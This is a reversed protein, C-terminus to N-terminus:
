SEDGPSLPFHTRERRFESLSELSYDELPRIVPHEQTFECQEQKGSTNRKLLQRLTRLQHSGSALAVECARELEAVAHTKTLARLGVLVRASEVGRAQATAAAWDRTRPGIRSIEKLLADVGREVASIKERPIAGPCSSFRGAPTIAHTFLASWRDDYLRLLRADWRVWVSRGVYEPPAAYYAKDVEVYGDRHVTRREERFMPFRAAPLPRLARQEQEEFLARVQRKTTGHIRQDAVQSEWHRLYNNQEELSSFTRGALANKQVYKVGGEIKGKHRPTYPKTPLFVTGHHAAFSRIKPHIDPDYWDAKTVAAKLNDLVIQEPVGGFHRFANELCDIFMETTQRWVVESYGKRSHSLVVRFVYPRRRKGDAGRVWAGQGFDVQAEVGPATELRRFPLPQQKNLRAVYRKVSWYQGPFGRETVLDQWIRQADLGRELGGTIFEHHETCLSTNVGPKRGALPAGALARADNLGAEQDDMRRSPLLVKEFIKGAPAEPQNQTGALGGPGAQMLGSSSTAVGSQGEGFGVKGVLNGPPAEPRNQIAHIRERLSGLPDEWTAFVVRPVADFLQLQSINGTPAKPQNQAVAGSDGQGTKTAVPGSSEEPEEEWIVDAAEVTQGKDPGGTGDGGTDSESWEVSQKEPCNGSPAEPQNQGNMLRVHRNVTDRNLELRRAIERNSFGQAHLQQIMERHSMSIENAM